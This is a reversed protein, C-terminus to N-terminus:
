KLIKDIQLSKLTESTPVGNEDWGRLEYYAQVMPELHVVEGKAPGDPLPNELFRKPLTDDKREFGERVNFMRTLSVVRAGLNKLERVSGYNFGTCPEIMQYVEKLRMGFLTFFCIVASDVVAKEDERDIALQVKGQDYAKPDAGGGYGCLETGATYARLHCGGRDSVAYGLGMGQAARPEYGPVELGKVHLAFPESGPLRESMNRVGWQLLNGAGVGKGISETLAVLAGPSGWKADVGGLEKRTLIGKEYLEMTFAIICGTSITDMGYLDCLHNTYAIAEADGVGCNSGLSFLTEYDPGDVKTGLYPEAKLAAIKSCKITCGMCAIDRVWLTDRLTEGSIKEAEPFRGTQFNRTPLAGTQNIMMLINATGYEPLSRVTTENMRLARQAIWAMKEFKGQNHVGVPKSGKVAIAKLKKSGMVAGTGGRGASRMDTLIGAIPSCREGCPGISAVRYEEGLNKRLTTETEVTTKGWVGNAPQLEAEGNKILLYVPEDSSDEIVVADFGTYKLEPGFFGGCHSDNMTGTTPSKTVVCFRGSSPALTGTLPGTAFILPNQPSLPDVGKPATKYLLYSGLGKGGLLLRAIDEELQEVKTRGLKLNIRLVAGAYGRNELQM